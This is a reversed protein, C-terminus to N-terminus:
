ALYIEHHKSVLLFKAKDEFSFVFIPAVLTVPSLPYPETCSPLLLPEGWMVSPTLWKIPGRTNAAPETVNVPVVPVTSWSVSALVVLLITTNVELVAVAGNTDDRVVLLKARVAPEPAVTLQTMM